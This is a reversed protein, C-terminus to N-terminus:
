LFKVEKLPTMHKRVQKVRNPDLSVRLIEEQDSGAEALIDGYPDVVMSNGCFVPGNAVDCGIRNAAVVYCQNEIARAQILTRWHAVRPFPWASSLLLLDVGHDVVLRRALEPFRLDYCILLGVHFAGWQFHVLTDGAEIYREEGLVTALHVKEYTVTDGNAAAFLQTNKWASNRTPEGLGVCVSVGSKVALEKVMSTSSVPRSGEQNALSSLAPLNYGVDFMEPALFLKPALDSFEGFWENQDRLQGKLKFLNKEPFGAECDAQYVVIHQLGSM